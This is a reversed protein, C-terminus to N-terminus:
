DNNQDYWGFIFTFKTVKIEVCILEEEAVNLKQDNGFKWIDL